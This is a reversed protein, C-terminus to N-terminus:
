SVDRWGRGNLRLHLTLETVAQYRAAVIALVRDLLRKVHLLLRVADTESDDLDHRAVLTELIRLSQLPAWLEGAILRYLRQAETDFRRRLGGSPLELLARM